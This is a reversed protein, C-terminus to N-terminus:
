VNENVPFTLDVWSCVGNGLMCWLKWVRGIAHICCVLEVPLLGDHNVSLQHSLLPLVNSIEVGLNIEEGLGNGYSWWPDSHRLM